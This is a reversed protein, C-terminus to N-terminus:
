FYYNDCNKCQACKCRFGPWSRILSKFDNVSNVEKFSRPIDNWIKAAIYRISHLGYSTTKVYPVIIDLNSHQRTQISNSNPKFLHSIYEPNLGKMCKFTEIAISHLRALSLRIMNSRVLMDDYSLHKDKYVLRLARRQISEMKERDSASCFHWIIPCYNFHSSIFSRVLALKSSQDLIHSIRSLANLQAGAKRCIFSIHEHFDLHKDIYVGLLKVSSEGTINIGNFDLAFGDYATRKSSLLMCQFKSPNAEMSNNNFWDVANKSEAILIEKVVQQNKGQAGLTNDDAYNFLSALKIFGYLDNIFINFLAPGLVSGQPVGKTIPLWDSLSSGIKVRQYRETLYSALFKVAIDTMGYRHLKAILLSHPMSDFAKSLDMLVTGVCNKNDLERRWQEVIGVLVSQCSYNQRFASISDHLITNEFVKLQQAILKEFLKSISCLISVPRYNKMTLPDDKKYVPTVTAYKCHLPFVSDTICLNFLYTLPVALSNSCMKLIKASIYDHGTAKKVDLAVIAKQMVDSSIHKFSFDCKNFDNQISLISAHDKFCNVSLDIFDDLNSFNEFRPIENNSGIHSAISIYFENLKNAVELPESILNGSSDQIILDNSSVTGKNTMFPKIIPWFTKNKAGGATAAQLHDRIARRRVSTTRNHQKRYAEWTKRGPFRKYKNWLRNRSMICKNLEKTMYSLPKSRVIKQKIPIHEDIIDTLLKTTVWTVDDVHDFVEAVHFPIYSLDTQFSNDDLERFSRYTIQKPRTKPLHAKLVGYVTTHGDSLHSVLTGSSKFRFKQNTLFVDISSNGDKHHYTPGDILNHLDFIDMFDTLTNPQVFMNCNLDGVLICNDYHTTSYDMIKALDESLFSDKTKPPKYCVLILWKTGKIRVEIPLTEM